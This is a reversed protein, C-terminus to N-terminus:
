NEDATVNNEYQDIVSWIRKHLPSGDLAAKEREVVQRARSYRAALAKPGVGCWKTGTKRNLKVCASHVSGAATKLRGVEEILKLDVAKTKRGISSPSITHRPRGARSRNHDEGAPTIQEVVSLLLRAEWDEGGIQVGFYNALALLREAKQELFYRNIEDDIRQKLAEPYGFTLLAKGVQDLEWIPDVRIGRYRLVQPGYREANAIRALLELLDPKVHSM